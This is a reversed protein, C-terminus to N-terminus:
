ALKGSVTKVAEALAESLKDAKDGGAQAMDPRGGGGGGLVAAVAKALEGCHVGRKVADPTAALIVVPKENAVSGLAIMASKAAKRLSDAMQRLDAAEANEIKEAIVKVGGIDKASALIEASSKKSESRKLTEIQKRLAKEQDLLAQVRTVLDAESANLLGCVQGLLVSKQEIVDLVGTGTVAEIRRIGAAVSSERLIKFAGIQGTRHTHTGGCLEKSYGGINVLRVVEGYKEGFLAMAGAKKAEAVTTQTAELAADGLILENVLAEIKRLQEPTLAAFHTFDFRLRDPAVLSGSQEARQSVIARLAHHLLHTATHNRAIAARRDADVKANVSSGVRLTGQAAEGVHVIFDGMKKADLVKFLSEGAAIVGTDGVQGGTEGYFPTADLVLAGSKGQGLEQVLQEGVIIAIIKGGAETTEYGVFPTGKSFKKIEGIPGTDFVDGKMDSGDRSRARQQEMEQEFGKKDVSFGQEDLIAETMELPFGYTDYLRFADAGALVKRGTKKMEATLEDLLVNGQALTQHFREEESKIVQAIYEGRQGIEPYPERMVDAILPVLTHLFPEAKGLQVGDRVARRLLRREVYGRGENSPLVGDSICFVVARVHDAIRRALVGEPASAEYCVGVASAIAKVIVSLIDIDFNSKVGQMVAAMRELGMGTDINKSPLPALVGGDRRDFQTFVLNWIEIHLGCDCDPGCKPKGCGRGQSLDYFIESCPGCPGNPGQTPADAPWFNDKAGFRYIKNAPVRIRKSWIEYAEDDDAYVSVTLFREALKMENLLFEWAWEITERKFYDGFSFNGLMEFFTHHRATRGVNDIDGTRLCKQSTTARKFKLNGKGLYMDKFQNMGAPTFLITPDNEPVLSDSPWIVHGKGEFFKLYRRRIEDTKM